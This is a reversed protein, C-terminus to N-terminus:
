VKTRLRHPIDSERLSGNRKTLFHVLRPHARDHLSVNRRSLKMFKKTELERQWSRWFHIFCLTAPLASGLCLSAAPLAGGDRSM